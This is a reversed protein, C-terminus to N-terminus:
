NWFSNQKAVEYFAISAANSVNLTSFKSSTPLKVIFDSKEKQLRRIGTGEAGFILCTKGKLNMDSLYQSGTECLSVIWFGYNKLKEISSALNKVICINVHELGGSAAKIVTGTLKCSSKEAVIIGSINFAAATRIIAGLNHPDVVRDLVCLCCDKSCSAFDTIDGYYSSEDIKMAIGQHIAEKPVIKKIDKEETKCIKINKPLWIPEPKGEQLYVKYIKHKGSLVANECSHMGFIIM